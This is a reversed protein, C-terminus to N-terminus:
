YVPTEDALPIPHRATGTSVVDYSQLVFADTQQFGLRCAHPFAKGDISNIPVGISLLHHPHSHTSTAPRTRLTSRVLLRASRAVGLDKHPASSLLSQRRCALLLRCLPAASTGHKGQPARHIFQVLQVHNIPRLLPHNGYVDESTKSPYVLRFVQRSFPLQPLPNICVLGEIRDFTLSIVTVPDELPYPSSSFLRPGDGPVAVLGYSGDSLKLSIKFLSSTIYLGHVLGRPQSHIPQFIVWVHLEMISRIRRCYPCHSFSGIYREFIHFEHHIVM